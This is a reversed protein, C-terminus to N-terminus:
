VADLDNRLHHLAEAAIRRAIATWTLVPPEHDAGLDRWAQLDRETADDRGLLILRARDGGYQWRLRAALGDDELQM